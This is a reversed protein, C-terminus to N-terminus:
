LIKNYINHQTKIIKVDFLSIFRKRIKVKVNSLLFFGLLRWRVPPLLVKGNLFIKGGDDGAAKNSEESELWVFATTV